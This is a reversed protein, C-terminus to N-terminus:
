MFVKCIQAFQLVVFCYHLFLVQKTLSLSLVTLTRSFEVLRPKVFFQLPFDTLGNVDLFSFSNNQEFNFTFKFNKHRTNMYKAFLLLHGKSKFLVFIDDVYRRYVVPKIEPPCSDLWLKENHCLFANALTPGLPSGMAVDDIQKYLINDFILSSESTASKLLYYLENKSLKGRYM